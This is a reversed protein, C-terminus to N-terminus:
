KKRFTAPALYRYGSNVGLTESHGILLYGDPATAECFRSVLRDKTERDFYIMVNRCFILDFKQHFPIPDMLNFTRFVVNERIMPAVQHQGSEGDRLFYKRKWLPPVTEPLEYRGEKAKRLAQQSIDTALVQAKWSGAESGLYDRLYMSITYPEEGSACGASWINLVRDKRHRQIIDPLITNQLFSFHEPERMFFTYNTTLRNLLLEMEAPDRRHLLHDIFPTFGSYGLTRVSYSLRGVILQRKKSLDIGFNQQVFVTLRNFDHDSIPLSSFSVGAGASVKAEM